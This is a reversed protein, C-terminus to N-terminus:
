ARLSDAREKTTNFNYIDMVQMNYASFNATSGAQM